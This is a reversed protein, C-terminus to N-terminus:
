RCLRGKYGCFNCNVKEGTNAKFDRSEIRNIINCIQSKCQELSSPSTDVEITKGEFLSAITAKSIKVNYIEKVALAYAKLQLRYAEMLFSAIRTNTKVDIVGASEKKLILHDIKGTIYFCDGLHYTFPMEPYIVGSAKSYLDSKLYNKLCREIFERDEATLPLKYYKDLLKKYDKVKINELHIKEILEHVITGRDKASLMPLGDDHKYFAKEPIGIVRSLYCRRPCRLFEGLLTVSFHKPVAVSGPCFQTERFRTKRNNFGLAKVDQKMVEPPEKILVIPTKEDTSVSEPNLWKLFSDKKDSKMEGSILLYDRARTLAVYLLRKAEEIEKQELAKKLSEWKDRDKKIAIGLGPEFLVESSKGSIEQGSDALIVIPFELGKSSHITIFRVVDEDETVDIAEQQDEGFDSLEELFEKLTYGQEDYDRCLDLFKFLNETELLDSQTSLLMTDAVVIGALERLTASDKIKCWRRILQFDKVLNESIGNYDADETIGSMLEEREIVYEALSEDKVGLLQSLTGYLNINDKYEITKLACLLKKVCPNETLSGTDAVHYPIGYAKFADIYHKLHTKRRLLVSFDRYTPDRYEKKYKDFIKISEDDMMELIKKAIFEGEQQRRERMLGNCEPMLICLNRNGEHCRHADIPEYGDMLGDFSRNILNIIRVDSRFNDKLTLVQGRSQLDERLKEFLEVRAGRFGYISQKKDGVVFLNTGNELLRLIADQVFNLDQYEDILIYKFKKRYDMLLEQNNKLLNLTKQLIDEYDLFVEKDKQLNYLKHSKKILMALIKEEQSEAMKEILSYRLGQNLMKVMSGYIEKSLKAFGMESTMQFVTKNELNNIITEQISEKLWAKARYEELVRVDPDIFAEVPNEQLLRLCFSHITGIYAIGLRELVKSYDSDSRRMKIEKRLRERIELAAKKTYTIAVIEDIDALGQELIYLIRDVLVRTKGAGAGATVVLNQDVTKIAKKQEPTYKM